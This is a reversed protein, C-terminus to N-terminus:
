LESYHLWQVSKVDTRMSCLLMSRKIDSQGMSLRTHHVEQAIILKPKEKCTNACTLNPRFSLFGWQFSPQHLVKTSSNSRIPNVYLSQSAQGSNLGSVLCVKELQQRTGLQHCDWRVLLSHMKTCSRCCCCTLLLHNDPQKDCSSDLIKKTVGQLKIGTHRFPALQLVM